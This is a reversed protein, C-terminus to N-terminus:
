AYIGPGFSHGKIKPRNAREQDERMMRQLETEKHTEYEEPLYPRSMVLYRLADMAHDETKVPQPKGDEGSRTPERWRYKEFERVLNVCNSFVYLRQKRLREKVRNIGAEVAHQGAITFIGHDSFEMQDSRGTQNNKNRAAPDIVYYLPNIQYKANTLKILDSVEKITRGQEYLEEFVYMNDYSDLAAWVVACRNRIGPDIGVVVNLGPHIFNDNPGADEAWIDANDILHYQKDFEGYILGAFHIHKGKKRAEIVEPPYDRLAMFKDEESLYPNDDMDVLTIGVYDSEWLADAKVEYQPTMFKQAIDSYTWTLGQLPTMTMIEDGGRRMIRLRNEEAVDKPPEEDYHVRHLTAGGMTSVEQKYTMFQIMSGNKFRLVRQQQNFAREWKDGVLQDKPVLEKIKQYLTLELTVMDTALVRVYCPPDYKKVFHLHEPVADWDCVQVIDDVLGATTKGSQNGGFFARFKQKQAHFRMQKWHVPKESLIPHNYFYLPNLEAYQDLVGVAQLAKEKELPSLKEFVDRDFLPKDQTM